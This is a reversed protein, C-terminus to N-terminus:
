FYYPKGGHWIVHRGPKAPQPKPASDPMKGVTLRRDAAYEPATPFARMDNASLRRVLRLQGAEEPEPIGLYGEGDGFVTLRVVRGVDRLRADMVTAADEHEITLTGEQKGDIYVPIQM